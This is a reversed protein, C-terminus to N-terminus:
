KQYFTFRHQIACPQIAPTRSTFNAGRKATHSSNDTNTKDSLLQASNARGRSCSYGCSAALPPHLQERPLALEACSSLSLVFVSLLLWVAFRLPFKM